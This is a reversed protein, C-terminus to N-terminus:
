AEAPEEMAVRALVAGEYVVPLERLTFLFGNAPSVVKELLVGRMPDILEGLIEGKSVEHRIKTKTVFLGSKNATVQKVRDPNVLRPRRIKPIFEEELNLVGMKYLLHVVGDFLQDSIMNDIELCTGAEIVLAPVKSHNLGYGLTYEFIPVIPHVWIVDVNTWQALPILTKDFGEIIRIQPAEKLHLNSSHIDIVLDSRECIDTMLTEAAHSPLSGKRGGFM